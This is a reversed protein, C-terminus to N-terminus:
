ERRIAEVPDLRAARLAPYTGFVIGIIVPGGCHSAHHELYLGSSFASQGTIKCDTRHDRYDRYGAPYPYIFTRHPFFAVPHLQHRPVRLDPTKEM